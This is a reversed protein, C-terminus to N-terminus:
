PLQSFRGIFCIYQSLNRSVNRKLNIVNVPVSLIFHDCAPIELDADQVSSGACHLFRGVGRLGGFIVSFADANGIMDIGKVPNIRVAYPDAIETSFVTWPINQDLVPVAPNIRQIFIQIQHPFVYAGLIRAM